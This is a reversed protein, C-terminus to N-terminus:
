TLDANESIKQLKDAYKIRLESLLKEREGCVTALFTNVNSGTLSFGNYHPLAEGTWATVPVVRAFVLVALLSLFLFNRNM